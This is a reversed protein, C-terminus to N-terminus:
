LVDEYDNNQLAKKTIAKRKELNLKKKNQVPTYDILLATIIDPLCHFSEAMYICPHIWEGGFEERM